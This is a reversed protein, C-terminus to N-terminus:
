SRLLVALVSVIKRFFILLRITSLPYYNIKNYKITENSMSAFKLSKETCEPQLFLVM